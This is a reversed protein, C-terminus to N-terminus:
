QKKGKPLCEGSSGRNRNWYCCDQFWKDTTCIEESPKGGMVMAKSCNNSTHVCGLIFYEHSNNLM